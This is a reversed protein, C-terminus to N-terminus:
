DVDVTLIAVPFFVAFVELVIEFESSRLMGRRVLATLRDFTALQEHL